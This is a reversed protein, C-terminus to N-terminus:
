QTEYKRRYYHSSGELYGDLQRGPHRIVDLFLIQKGRRLVTNGEVSGWRPLKWALLRAGNSIETKVEGLVDVGDAPM